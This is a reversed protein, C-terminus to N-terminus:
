FLHISQFFVPVIDIIFPNLKGPMVPKTQGNFNFMPSTGPDNVYGAVDATTGDNTYRITVRLIYRNNNPDKVAEGAFELPKGTQISTYPPM